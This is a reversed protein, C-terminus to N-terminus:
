NPIITFLQQGFNLIDIGVIKGLLGIAAYASVLVILGIVGNM